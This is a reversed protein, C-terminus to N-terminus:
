FFYIMQANPVWAHAVRPTPAPASIYTAGLTLYMGSRLVVGYSTSVTESGRWLTKGQAAVKAIYDPSFGTYTTVVSVMDRPRSQFPGKQYFRMEYYRSYINMESPDAIVSVGAYLGDGPGGYGVQTLQRDALLFATYNGPSTGGTSYNTYPTSNHFYGGRIWTSKFNAASTTRYGAEYLQLAKYGKPAFRLGIQNRVITAHGGGPDLSRQVGAKVYLSKTIQTRVNIGPATLPFHTMGVEYPLVAYVGLNGSTVSGGVALGVFEWDNNMYGGKVEVRRGAFAKYVNLSSLMVANPGNQEWSVQNSGGAMFLQANRLGLFRLDSTLIGNFMWRWTGRQGVYKQDSLAVPPSLVNQFYSDNANVRVAFGRRGLGTRLWSRLPILNDSLSPLATDGGQMNLSDWDIPAPAAVGAKISAKGPVGQGALWSTGVALIFISVIWSRAM